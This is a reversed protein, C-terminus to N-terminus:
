CRFQMPNLIQILSISDNSFWCLLSFIPGNKSFGSSSMLEDDLMSLSDRLIAAFRNSQSPRELLTRAKEFDFRGLVGSMLVVTLRMEAIRDGQDVALQLYRECDLLQGSRRQCEFLWLAYLRQAPRFGQDASFTCYNVALSKNMSIGEGHSLMVGYIFQAKVHGQNASLKFYHAGLSKDMLIGNGRFTMLGYNFQARGYGQNASRKLYHAALSRNM